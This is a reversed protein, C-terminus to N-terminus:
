VRSVGEAVFDTLGVLAAANRVADLSVIGTTGPQPSRFLAREALAGADDFMDGSTVIEAVVTIDAKLVPAADAVGTTLAIVLAAILSALRRNMQVERLAAAHHGPADPRSWLDGAREDRLRAAGRDPRLDRDRRQRQRVRPLG